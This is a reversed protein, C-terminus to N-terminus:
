LEDTVATEEKAYVAQEVWLPLDFSSYVISVFMNLNAFHVHSSLAVYLV